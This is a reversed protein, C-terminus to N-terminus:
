SNRRESLEGVEATSFGGRWARRVADPLNAGADRRHSESQSATCLLREGLTVTNGEGDGFVQVEIHMVNEVFQEFCIQMPSITQALTRWRTMHM